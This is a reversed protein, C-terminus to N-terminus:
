LVIEFLIAEFTECPTSSELMLWAPGFSLRNGEPVQHERGLVVVAECVPGGAEGETPVRFEASTPGLFFTRWSSFCAKSVLCGPIYSQEKEDM